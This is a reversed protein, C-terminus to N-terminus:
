NMSKAEIIQEGDRWHYGIVVNAFKGILQSQSM